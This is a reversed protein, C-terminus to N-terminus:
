LIWLSLTYLRISCDKLNDNANLLRIGDPEDNLRFPNGLFDAGKFMLIKNDEHIDQTAILAMFSVPPPPIAPPIVHVHRPIWPPECNSHLFSHQVLSGISRVFFSELLFRTNTIRQPHNMLLPVQDYARGIRIAGGPNLLAFTNQSAPNTITEGKLYMIFEGRAFVPQAEQLAPKAQWQQYTMNSPM